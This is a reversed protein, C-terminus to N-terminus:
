ASEPSGLHVEGSDLALREGSDTFVVLNGREDIGRADGRRTAGREEWSIRNGMLVDRERYDDLVAQAGSAEIDALRSALRALLADLVRDRDVPADIAIRLSTASGSLEPGLEEPPTDVNLGIGVVAWGEQPRAEILIGAVKRTDIWVDNPWKIRSAVRAADECAESVAVPVALPLLELAARTTKVVVSLTLARGRPASWARGQRGRGATQEEAIVVTGAPAGDRVLELARDNTSDVTDLHILPGSLAGSGPRPSLPQSLPRDAV